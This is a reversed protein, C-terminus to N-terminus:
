RPSFPRPCRLGRGGRHRPRARFLVSLLRGYSARAAQEAARRADQPDSRSTVAGAHADAAARAAGRGLRDFGIAGEAAWNLAADLDPVEIVFYGGLQEKTEAFPGDEVVRKGDRVRLPPQPMRGRSPWRGERHDRSAGDCRHLRDLRGLLRGVAGPREPARLRRRDRQPHAHFQM